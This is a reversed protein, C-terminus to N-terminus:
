RKLFNLTERYVLLKGKENFVEHRMDKFLIGKIHYYGNRCLSKQEKSFNKKGGICPDYEGGVFLIPLSPNSCKWNKASYATDLLHFLALFADVTFTFGCLPDADYAKVVATDACVWASLSSEKRFATRYSAFALNELLTGKHKSGFLKKQINALLIAAKVAPNQCPTGSLVLADICDDHLKTFVKACLAGMSHGIMTLPLEPFQEKITENVLLIDDLIGKMGAGYMYGLDALSRVSKGHGRHDHIISVFGHDAFYTMIPLYREKHESMGHIFQLIGKYSNTNQPQVCLVSLQLQDIRSILNFTKIEHM